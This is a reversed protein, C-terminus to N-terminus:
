SSCALIVCKRRGKRFREAEQKMQSTVLHQFVKVFCAVDLTVNINFHSHMYKAIKTIPIISIIAIYCLIRCLTQIMTNIFIGARWFNTCKVNPGHSASPQRGRNYLRCGEKLGQTRSYWTLYSFNKFVAESSASCFVSSRISWRFSIRLLTPLFCISVNIKRM